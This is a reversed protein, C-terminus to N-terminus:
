QVKETKLLEVLKALTGVGTAKAIENLVTKTEDSLDPLEQKDNVVEYNEKISKREIVVEWIITAISVFPVNFVYLIYLLNLLPYNSYVDKPIEGPVTSLYSLAFDIALAAFFLGAYELIKMGTKRLGDSFTKYIGLKKSKEIGTKLDIGSLPIVSFFWLATVISIKLFAIGPNGELINQIFLLTM